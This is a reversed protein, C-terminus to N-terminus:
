ASDFGEADADVVDDSVVAGVGHGHVVRAFDAAVALAVQAYAPAAM